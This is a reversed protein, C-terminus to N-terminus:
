HTSKESKLILLFLLLITKEVKLIPLVVDRYSLILINIEVEVM